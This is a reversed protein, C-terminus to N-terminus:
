YSVSARCGEDNLEIGTYYKRCPSQQVQVEGLRRTLTTKSPQGHGNDRCWKQFAKYAAKGDGRLNAGRNCHENIWQGVM